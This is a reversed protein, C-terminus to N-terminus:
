GETLLSPPGVLQRSLTQSGYDEPDENRGPEGEDRDEDGPENVRGTGSAHPLQLGVIDLLDLGPGPPQVFSGVM